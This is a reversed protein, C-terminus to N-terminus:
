TEFSYHVSRVYPGFAIEGAEPAIMLVMGILVLSCSLIICVWFSLANERPKHM